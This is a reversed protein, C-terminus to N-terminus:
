GIAVFTPQDGQTIVVTRVKNANIKPLGAIKKAIEKVDTLNFNM